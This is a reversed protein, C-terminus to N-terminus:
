QLVITPVKITNKKKLIHISKTIKLVISDIIDQPVTHEQKQYFLENLCCIVRM